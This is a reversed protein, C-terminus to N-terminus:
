YPCRCRLVLLLKPIHCLKTYDYTDTDSVSVGLEFLTQIEYTYYCMSLPYGVKKIRCNQWLFWINLSLTHLCNNKQKMTMSFLLKSKLPLWSTLIMGNEREIVIEKMPGERVWECLCVKLIFLRLVTYAVCLGNWKWIWENM